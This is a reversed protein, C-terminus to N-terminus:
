EMKEALEEWRLTNSEILQNVQDYRENKQQMAQPDISSDVFDEELQAKELELEEILPLLEEFEKKENFSLGRKERKKPWDASKSQEKKARAKEKRSYDWYETYSGTFGQVDGSGDLVFLGDVVKDLFYRDHSVVLVCGDYDELFSELAGLTDIDLDNTPEDFILFNPSGLLVTILQLRRREGGSLLKLPTRFKEKPFLFEELLQGASVVQGGAKTITDGYSQLYDLVNEDSDLSISLQDFYGFVTNKGPDVFGSDPEIDGVLIKLFTTKGVGNGGILGLREGKKFSYDFSNLITKDGFSKEVHKLELVKKGLRKGETSFDSMIPSDGEQADMLDYARAIRKKDKTGRAKPGRSLWEVERRLITKIREQERYKIQLRLDRKELYYTYNGDYRYLRQDDIEYIVSCVNNLFYRDHTVVVLSKETQKLFEELWIITPADLHNTPEDLLILQSDNVLVQALSVKRIMGGSLEGMKQTVNEIGLRNLVGKINSEITWANLNDMQEMLEQLREGGPRNQAVDELCVEYERIATMVPSDDKFIHDLVTDQSDYDPKQPLYSVHYGKNWSIHGEDPEIKQALIKLLTSKGTGNIGILAVKQGKQIGFSVGEFLVKDGLIKTINDISILNEAM